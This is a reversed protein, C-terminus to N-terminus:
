AQEGMEGATLDDRCEPCLRDWLDVQDKFSVLDDHPWWRECRHCQTLDEPLAHALGSIACALEHQAKALAALPTGNAADRSRRTDGVVMLFRERLAPIGSEVPPQRLM